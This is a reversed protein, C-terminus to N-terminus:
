SGDESHPRDGRTRLLGAAILCVAGIGLELAHAALREQSIIGLVMLLGGFVVLLAYAASLTTM